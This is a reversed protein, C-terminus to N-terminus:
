IRSLVNHVLSKVQLYEMEVPGRKAHNMSSQIEQHRLNLIGIGIRLEHGDAAAGHFEDLVYEGGTLRGNVYQVVQQLVLLDICTRLYSGM